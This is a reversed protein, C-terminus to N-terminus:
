HFSAGPVISNVAGAVRFRSGDGTLVGGGITAVNPDEFPQVLEALWDREPLADDDIFVIIGGTAARIAHNRARSINPEFFRVYQIRSAVRGPLARLTPFPNIGWM